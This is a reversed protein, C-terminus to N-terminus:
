DHGSRREWIKKRGVKRSTRTDLGGIDVEPGAYDIIRTMDDPGKIDVKAGVGLQGLPHLLV